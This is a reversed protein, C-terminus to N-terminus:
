INPCNPAKFNEITLIGAQKRGMENFYEEVEDIRKDEIGKRVCILRLMEVFTGSSLSSNAMM